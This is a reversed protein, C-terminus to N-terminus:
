KGLLIEDAFRGCISKIIQDSVPLATFTADNISFEHETGVTM